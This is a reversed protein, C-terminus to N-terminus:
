ELCRLILANLAPPIVPNEEIPPRPAANKQRFALSMTSGGEFPPHGTLTEYLIIGLAYIDTRNDAPAGDIQEPAMYDPTGLILNERTSAEDRGLRAIGFDMIRLRQREDVIINRPKLDRHVIGLKHAEALGSCIQRGYDVATAVGLAGAKAILGRLTDGPCFEMTIYPRGEAEGIDFVRCVNPHTVRRALKLEQRFRELVRPEDAIEPAIIKLAVNEEITTDFVKYVRGMGGRGIEEIVRYRGAFVEGAALGFAPASMTETREDRPAPGPGAKELPAGCAACVRSAAANQTRCRPCNM